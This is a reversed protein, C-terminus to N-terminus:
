TMDCMKRYGPKTHLINSVLSDSNVFVNLIM